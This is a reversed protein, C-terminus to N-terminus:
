PAECRPDGIREVQAMRSREAVLVSRYAELGGEVFFAHVVGLSNLAHTVELHRSGDDELVAVFLAGNGDDRAGIAAVLARRFQAPDPGLPVHVARPVGRALEPSGSESVDIVLWHDYRVAHALERAPIRNLGGQMARDGELDGVLQAWANLGGEVIGVSGFGAARLERCAQELEASAYGRDVLLLRRSKLYGRGLLSRLPLNISGPIRMRRFEAPERADVVLLEGETRWRALERPAVYCSLDRTRPTVGQEPCAGAESIPGASSPGAGAAFGLLAFLV